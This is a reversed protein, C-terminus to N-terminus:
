LTTSDVIAWRKAGARTQETCQKLAEEYAQTDGAIITCRFRRQGGSRELVLMAPRKVGGLESLSIRHTDNEFHTIRAERESGPGFELVILAGQDFLEVEFFERLTRTPLQIQTGGAGTEKLIQLYLRGQTAGAGGLASIISQWQGAHESRPFRDAPLGRRTQARQARELDIRAKIAALGEDVEISELYDELPQLNEPHLPPQPKAYTQWLAELQLIVEGDEPIAEDLELFVGAECNAFLGGMTLNSSGLIVVTEAAGRFLYVKPHFVLSYNNACFVYKSAEPLEQALYHLADLDTVANDIGVIIEVQGGRDQFEKLVGTVGELGNQTAFAVLFRATDFRSPGQSLLRVIQEVFPSNGMWQNLITVRM